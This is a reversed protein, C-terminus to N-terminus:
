WEWWPAMVSLDVNRIPGFTDDTRLETGEGANLLAKRESNPLTFEVSGELVDVLASGGPLSRFVIETGRVGGGFRRFRYFRNPCSTTLNRLCESIVHIQGKLFEYVSQKENLEAVKFSSNPGLHITSRDPLMIEVFSDPGTEILDGTYIPTSGDYASRGLQSTRNVTGRIKTAFGFPEHRARWQLAGEVIRLREEDESKLGKALDLGVQALRVADQAIRRAEAADPADLVNARAQAMQAQALVREAQRVGESHVSVSAELIAKEQKLFQFTWEDSTQTQASLSSHGAVVLFLSVVCLWLSYQPLFGGRASWPRGWPAPFLM